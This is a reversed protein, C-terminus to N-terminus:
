VVSKREVLSSIGESPMEEELSAIGGDAMSKVSNRYAIIQEYSPNILYRQDEPMGVVWNPNPIRGGAPMETQANKTMDSVTQAAPTFTEAVAPLGGSNDRDSSGRSNDPMRNAGLNKPRAKPRSADFRDIASDSRGDINDPNGKQFAGSNSLNSAALGGLLGPLGGTLLGMGANFGAGRTLGDLGTRTGGRDTWGSARQGSVADKGGAKKYDKNSMSSYSAGSGGKGGGDFADKFSDYGFFGGSKKSSTDKNSTDKSPKDKDKEKNGGSFWGM